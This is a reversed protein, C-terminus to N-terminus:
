VVKPLRPNPEPRLLELAGGHPSELEFGEENVPNVRLRVRALKSNHCYSPRGDPNRYCLCAMDRLSADMLLHAEGDRGRLRLSWSTDDIASRQRWFDFTRDFRYEHKGRRVVMASLWPSTVPGLGIRASFGEVCCSPEGAADTFNCQGWAYELAHERGWNHGQMGLWGDLEIPEGFVQLQGDFRLVPHPTVLKLKPLPADYMREYPFLRMPDDGIGPWPRWRLDWRCEGESSGLAGRASGEAELLFEAGAIEVARSDPSIAAERVPVTRKDSFVRHQEGDFVIAWLEAVHEGRLPAFITAKLWVARPRAPDNARLFYSEVHGSRAGPRYRVQNDSRLM